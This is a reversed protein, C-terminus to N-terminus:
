WFMLIASKIVPIMAIVAVMKIKVVIKEEFSDLYILLTRYVIVGAATAARCAVAADVATVDTAALAVALTASAADPTAVFVENIALM